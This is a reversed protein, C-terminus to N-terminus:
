VTLGLKKYVDNHVNEQYWEDFDKTTITDDDNEIEVMGTKYNFTVLNGWDTGIEFDTGFPVDCNFLKVPMNVMVDNTYEGVAQVIERKAPIEMLFSDHILNLIYTLFDKRLTEECAMSSCLLTDSSSSQIPFNKAENQLSHLSEKTVLGFRRRRHFPTELYNGQIVQAACWDLYKKAGYYKNLWGSIMDQAEEKTINFEDVFSQPERGYPIGFNVAKARMKQQPTYHPGFLATATEKHLNKGEIFVERLVPCHSLYALWRLEASKYDIEALIYGPRPIFARRINGIGHAAPQNEINPEKSSLRGTATVHLTFTTRVRGDVDRANLIGKVYTSQEKQVTRYELVRSVLPPMPDISNLIDKNTSKGKKIRPKLKLRNFVMWAMQKPSGPNFKSPASKANMDVMYQYPDWFPEALEQIDDMIQALKIDYKKDLDQLFFPDILIGNQEVRSLFNAAPILLKNYLKALGPEKNVQAMLVAVLQYTYDCDVSVRECLSDFFQPYTQLTISGDKWKQNMKYKYPKAQLFVKSLYELDHASTEDLVYHMYLVDEDISADGLNRRWLVKKDYKGHQWVCRWPVGTIFNHVLYKMERPIIYVKNKEYCIGMVLFEATRYDLGTTETDYSAYPMKGAKYLAMLNKWGACMKEPTDLVEWQVTGRDYAGNGKYYSAALQLMSLFPKYDGPAYIIVGPNMIPIVQANGCFSYQRASGYESTIKIKTNGTLTQLAISGCVLILKPQIAAIEQLLRTRCNVIAEKPFASGNKKKPIACAIATTFGVHEADTPLGVKEMTDILIKGNSGSMVANRKAEIATPCEGIILIDKHQACSVQQWFNPNFHPYVNCSCHACNECIGM